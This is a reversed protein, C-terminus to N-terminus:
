QSESKDIIMTFLLKFIIEGILKIRKKCNHIIYHKMKKYFTGKM